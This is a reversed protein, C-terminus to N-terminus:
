GPPVAGDVAIVVENRRLFWPKFPPDFRAFRPESIAQLGAHRIAEQLTTCHRLYSDQSWRGSYRVAAAYGAPVVRVQVRSDTPEPANAPTITAPLVFAVTFAGQDTEQQVVPATMAIRQGSPGQVVPATMAMRQQARNAGSIYQLLPNFARNGAEEFSGEVTIEVVVHEPYWRLEFDPYKRVVQYPQQETM